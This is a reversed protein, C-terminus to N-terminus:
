KTAKNLDELLKKININFEKAIAEINEFHAAACGICPLNYKLFVEFAKPYKQLIESIGMEKTIKKGQPTRSLSVQLGQRIAAKQKKIKKM